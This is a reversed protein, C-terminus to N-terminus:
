LREYFYGCAACQWVRSKKHGLRAGGVLLAAGIATGMAEAALVAVGSRDGGAFAALGGILALGASGLVLLGTLVFIVGLTQLLLNNQHRVTAEMAGGCQRCAVDTTEGM